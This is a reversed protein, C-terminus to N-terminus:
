RWSIPASPSATSSTSPAASRRPASAWASSASRRRAAKTTAQITKDAAESSAKALRAIRLMAESAKALQGAAKEVEARELSAVNMVTDSQHRVATSSAALLHATGVVEGLVKSTEDALLNLADAVPGTADETVVARTTLDRQALRAVSQLLDIVADNLKSTEEATRQRYGAHADLLRDLAAGLQGLEDAGTV